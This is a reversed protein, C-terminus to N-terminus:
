FDYRQAFRMLIASVQARTAGGAPVLTSETMGNIMGNSVAWSVADEAYASVDAADSFRSLATSDPTVGVGRYSAYRYLLAALQERTIPDDPAFSSESIGNVVGNAAAWSVAPQLDASVDTFSSNGETEPAGEMQYLAYVLTGRDAGADPEFRDGEPLILGNLCAYRVAEYYWSNEGVDSLSFETPFVSLGSEDLTYFVPASDDTVYWVAKGGYMIPQCDSLMGDATRVDSVNGEADYSAYAIRGTSSKIVSNYVTKVDWIVYGRDAGDSVLQPTGASYTGREYSTLQHVETGSGSFDDKDTATLYINRSYTDDYDGVGDDNFATVYASATETLGGVAAGTKQYVRENEPFSRLIVQDTGGSFGGNEAGNRYRTLVAARPYVDGHNLTVLNGGEDALIYQNFSHSVYGSGSYGVTHQSDTVTMDSQRVAFLLNAQHNLGDSSTYMSHCTHVYLMGGYEDCRLSGFDFPESTNAGFLGAQGLRNWNWDYKIVRIVETSDSEAPNSQGVIVFLYQEGAFFGGWLDFGSDPTLTRSSLLQFDRSYEEILLRGGTYEVRVLNEGDQYLYSKVTSADYDTYDNENRNSSVAPSLEEAALSPVPLLSLILALCCCVALAAHKRKMKMVSVM